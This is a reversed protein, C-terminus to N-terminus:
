QVGGELIRTLDRAVIQYAAEMGRGYDDGPDDPAAYTDRLRAIAQKLRVIEAVAAHVWAPDSDRYALAELARHAIRDPIEEDAYRKLYKRAQEPTMHTMAEGEPLHTRRGEDALNDADIWEDPLSQIVNAATRLDPDVEVQSDAQIIWEAWERAQALDNNTTM